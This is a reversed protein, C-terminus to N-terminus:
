TVMVGSKNLRDCNLSLSWTTWITIHPLSNFFLPRRLLEPFMERKEVGQGQEDESEPRLRVEKLLGGQGSGHGWMWASSHQSYTM